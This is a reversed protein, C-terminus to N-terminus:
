VLEVDLRRHKAHFTPAYYACCSADELSVILWVEGPCQLMMHLDANSPIPPGEPHVHYIGLYKLGRKKLKLIANIWAVQDLVFYKRYSFKNIPIRAKVVLKISDESILKYGGIVGYAEVFSLSTAENLIERLIHKPLYLVYRIPM